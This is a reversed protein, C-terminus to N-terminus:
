KGINLKNLTENDIHRRHSHRLLRRHGAHKHRSNTNNNTYSFKDRMRHNPSFDVTNPMVENNTNFTNADLSDVTRNLLDTLGSAVVLNYNACAFVHLLIVFEVLLSRCISKFKLKRM